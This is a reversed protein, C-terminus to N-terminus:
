KSIFYDLEYAEEIPKNASLGDGFIVSLLFLLTYWAANPYPDPLTQSPIGKTSRSM